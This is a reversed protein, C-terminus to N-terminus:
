REEAKKLERDFQKIDKEQKLKDAFQEIDDWRTEILEWGENKIMNWARSRAEDETEFKGIIWRPYNEPLNDFYCIYPSEGYGWFWVTFAEGKIAHFIPHKIEMYNPIQIM